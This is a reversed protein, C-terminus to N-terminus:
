PKDAHSPPSGKGPGGLVRKSEAAKVHWKDRDRIFKADKDSLTVRCAALNQALKEARNLPSASKEKSGTNTAVSTGEEWNQM